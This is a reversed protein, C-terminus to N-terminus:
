NTLYSGHSYCSELLFSALESRVPPKSKIELGCKKSVTMSHHDQHQSLFYCSIFFYDDTFFHCYGENLFYLYNLRNKYLTGAFHFDSLSWFTNAASSFTIWEFLTFQPIYLGGYITAVQLCREIAALLLSYADEVSDKFVQQVWSYDDVLPVIFVASM